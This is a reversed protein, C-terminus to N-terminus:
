AGVLSGFEITVGRAVILVPSTANEVANAAAATILVHGHPAESRSGVVLLDVRPEDRTVTAALAGALERATGLTADDGPDALLGITRVEEHGRERYDAPAIALAAPGGELLTQASRGPSVHGAATRYDSGFVVMDAREQRALWRLGEGTSASVVVRRDVRSAVDDLWLAGRELLDWAAHEDPETRHSVYALTLRAGADALLQGLALADQDNPTDDYSIIAHPAM